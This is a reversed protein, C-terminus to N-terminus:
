LQGLETLAKDISLEFHDDHNTDSDYKAAEQLSMLMNYLPDSSSSQSTASAPHSTMHSSYDRDHSSVIDDPKIHHLSPPDDRWPMTELVWETPDSWHHVGDQKLPSKKIVSIVYPVVSFNWLDTFWVRASSADMPCSSFMRPGITVESGSQSELLENLYQWCKPLWTVVLSLVDDSKSQQTMQHELYSRRLKRALHTRVPPSSNSCTIWTFESLDSVKKDTTCIIFVSELAKPKAFEKLLNQPQKITQMNDLVIIKTEDPNRKCSTAINRLFDELEPLAKQKAEIYLAPESSDKVRAVYDALRNALLTKGSGIPSCIVIRQKQLLINVYYDVITKDTLLEFALSDVANHRSDQLKIVIKDTDGVLYGCPLLELSKAGIRRVGDGISYSEISSNDLKLCNAPDITQCYALFIKQIKQDLQVWTASRSIPCSNIEILQIKSSNKPSFDAIGVLIRIKREEAKPIKEGVDGGSSTVSSSSTMSYASLGLQHLQENEKRLNDIENKMRNMTDQLRQLQGRSTLAELRIDILTREKQWLEEKLKCITDTDCSGNKSDPSPNSLIPSGQGTKSPSDLRPDNNLNTKSKSKAFASKFSSKFWGKRKKQKDEISGASALSSQSSMSSLSTCSMKKKFIDKPEEIEDFNENSKQKLNEIQSRLEQLESDKEDATITLDRLRSTLYSLSQEFEQVMEGQHVAKNRSLSQLFYQAMAISNEDNKQNQNAHNAAGLSLSSGRRKLDNASSVTRYNSSIYARSVNPSSAAAASPQLGPWDFSKHRSQFPRNHYPRSLGNYGDLEPVSLNSFSNPSDNFQDSRDIYNGFQDFIANDPTAPLSYAANPSTRPQSWTTNGARRTFRRPLSQTASMTLGYDNDKKSTSNFHNFYGVDDVNTNGMIGNSSDGMLGNENAIPVNQRYHNTLVNATSSTSTDDLLARSKKNAKSRLLLKLAPSRVFGEQGNQQSSQAISRGSQAIASMNTGNSHIVDDSSNSIGGFDGYNFKRMRPLSRYAHANRYMFSNTPGMGSPSGSRAVGALRSGVISSGQKEDNKSNRKELKKKSRGEGDLKANSKKFSSLSRNSETTSNSSKELSEMSNSISKKNALSSKKVPLPPPKSATHFPSNDTSTVSNDETSMGTILESIDESSVSSIDDIDDKYVSKKSHSEDWISRPKHSSLPRQMSGYKGGRPTTFSGQGLSEGANLKPSRTSHSITNLGSQKSDPFGIERSRCATNSNLPPPVEPLATEEVEDLQASIRREFEDSLRNKLQSNRLNIMTEELNQRLDAIGKATKRREEMSITKPALGEKRVELDFESSSEKRSKSKVDHMMSKEDDSTIVDPLQRYFPAVTATKTTKRNDTAGPLQINRATLEQNAHNSEDNIVDNVVDLKAPFKTAKQFLGMTSEASSKSLDESDSFNFDNGTTKNDLQHSTMNQRLRPDHGKIEYPRVLLNNLNQVDIRDRKFLQQEDSYRKNSVDDKAVIIIENGEITVKTNHNSIQSQQSVSPPPKVTTASVETTQPKDEKGGFNRQYVDSLKSRPNENTSVRPTPLSRVPSSTNSKPKFTTFKSAPLLSRKEKSDSSNSVRSPTRGGPKITNTPSLSSKTSTKVTSDSKTTASTASKKRFRSLVSTSSKPTPKPKLSSTKRDPSTATTATSSRSSNSTSRSVSAKPPVLGSKMKSPLKSEKVQSPKVLRSGSSTMSSSPNPSTMSSKVGNVNSKAKGPAALKTANGIKSQQYTPGKKTAPEKPNAKKPLKSSVPIGNQQTQITFSHKANVSRSRRETTQEVPKPPLKTANNVNEGTSADHIKNRDAANFSQSKRSVTSPPRLFSRGSTSGTM